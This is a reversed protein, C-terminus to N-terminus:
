WPILFLILVTIIIIIILCKCLVFLKSLLTTVTTCTLFKREVTFLLVSKGRTFNCHQIHISFTSLTKIIISMKSCVFLFLAYFYTSVFLQEKKLPCQKDRTMSWSPFFTVECFFFFNLTIHYRPLLIASSFQTTSLTNIKM